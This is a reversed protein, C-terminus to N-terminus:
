ESRTIERDWWCGSGEVLWGAVVHDDAPRGVSVGVERWCWRFGSGAAHARRWVRGSPDVVEAGVPSSRVLSLAADLTLPGAEVATM